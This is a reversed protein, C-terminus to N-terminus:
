FHINSMPELPEVTIKSWDIEQDREMDVEGVTMISDGRIMYCGLPHDKAGETSFQREISHSLILNTTQDFGILTGLIIRGDITLVQVKQDMMGQLESM